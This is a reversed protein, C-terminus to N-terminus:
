EPSDHARVIDLAFRVLALVVFLSILFTLAIWVLVRM